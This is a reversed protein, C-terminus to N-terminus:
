VFYAIYVITSYLNINNYKGTKGTNVINENQFLYFYKLVGQLYSNRIVFNAGGEIPYWNGQNGAFPNQTAVARFNTTPEGPFSSIGIRLFIM